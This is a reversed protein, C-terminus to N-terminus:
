VYSEQKASYELFSDVLKPRVLDSADLQEFVLSVDKNDLNNKMRRLVALCAVLVADSYNREVPDKCLEVLRDAGGLRLVDFCVQPDMCLRRSLRLPLPFTM